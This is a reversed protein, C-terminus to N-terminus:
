PVFPECEHEGDLHGQTMLHARVYDAATDIPVLAGSLSYEESFSALETGNTFLEEFASRDTLELEETTVVGDLDLDANALFQARLRITRAGEGFANYLIHEA